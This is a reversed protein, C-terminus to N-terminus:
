PEDANKFRTQIGCLGAQCSGHYLIIYRTRNWAPIKKSNDNKQLNKGTAQRRIQNSSTHSSTINVQWASTNTKSDPAVKSQPVLISM